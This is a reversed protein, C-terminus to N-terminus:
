LNLLAAVIEGHANKLNRLPGGVGNLYFAAQQILSDAMLMQYNSIRQSETNLAADKLTALTDRNAATITQIQQQVSGVGLPIGNLNNLAIQLQNKAAARHTRYTNNTASVLVYAQTVMQAESVKAAVANNFQLAALADASAANLHKFYPVQTKPDAMDAARVILRQASLIQANSLPDFEASGRLRMIKRWPMQNLAVVESNATSVGKLDVTGL